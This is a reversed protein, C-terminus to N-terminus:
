ILKEIDGSYGQFIDFIKLLSIVKTIESVCSERHKHCKQFKHKM